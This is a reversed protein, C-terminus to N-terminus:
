ISVIILMIPATFIISDFRDLLGGHGPIIYGSDKINFKRKFYSIFLDSLQAVLAIFMSTLIINITNSFFYNYINFNLFNCFLVSICSSSIIGTLLGSWTKNPSLCPALRPGEITKGGLMAFTDVSWIIIFYMLLMFRNQIIFNVLLLSTIPISIIPIGLLLFLVSSRTMMYWELLMGISILLIVVNFLQPIWIISIIFIVGIVLGSLVRLKM